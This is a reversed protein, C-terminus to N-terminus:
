VDVIVQRVSEKELESSEIEFPACATIQKADILRKHILQHVVYTNVDLRKAVEDLSVVDRERKRYFPASGVNAPEGQCVRKQIPCPL